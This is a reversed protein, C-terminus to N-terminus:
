DLYSYAKQLASIRCMKKPRGGNAGAVNHDDIEEDAARLRKLVREAGKKLNGPGIHFVDCFSLVTVWSPKVALLKLDDWRTRQPPRAPPPARALALPEDTAARQLLGGNLAIVAPARTAARPKWAILVDVDVAVFGVAGRHPRGDFTQGPPRRLLFAIVKCAGIRGGDRRAAIMVARAHELYALMTSGNLGLVGSAGTLKVDVLAESGNYPHWPGPQSAAVRALIDFSGMYENEGDINRVALTSAASPLDLKLDTATVRFPLFEAIYDTAFTASDCVMTADEDTLECRGNGPVVVTRPVRARLDASLPAPISYIRPLLRDCSLGLARWHRRWSAPNFSSMDCWLIAIHVATRQQIVQVLTHVIDTAHLDIWFDM